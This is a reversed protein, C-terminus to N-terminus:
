IKLNNYLEQRLENIYKPELYSNIIQGLLGESILERIYQKSKDGNQNKGCLYHVKTNPKIWEYLKLKSDNSLYNIWAKIPVYNKMLIQSKIFDLEGHNAKDAFTILYYIKEYNLNIDKLFTATLLCTRKDHSVIYIDAKLELLKILPDIYGHFVCSSIPTQGLDNPQNIDAGRNILEYFVDFKSHFISLFLLSYNFPGKTLNPNIENELSEVINNLNGSTISQFIAM